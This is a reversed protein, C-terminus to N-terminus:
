IDGENEVHWLLFTEYFVCVCVCVCVCVRKVKEFDFQEYPTRHDAHTSVKSRCGELLYDDQFHKKESGLCKITATENKVYM